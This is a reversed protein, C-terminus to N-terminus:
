FLEDLLQYFAVKAPDPQQGYAQYFLASYDARLNYSLSRVALALDQHRDAVGFRGLDVFGALAFTDRDFLVNPLCYDGHTPVLDEDTPRQALLQAGLEAASLGRRADDLDELDVQGHELRQMATALKVDLTQDFQRHAAIPLAHLIQLAHALAVVLRGPQALLEPQSADLGPLASMRLADYGDDSHFRQVRPALAAGSLHELVDRERRLSNPSDTRDIKIFARQDGAGICFVRAGSYGVKIETLGDFEAVSTVQALLRM